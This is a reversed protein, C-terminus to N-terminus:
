LYNLNNNIQIVSDQTVRVSFTMVNHCRSLVEHMGRPGSVIKLMFYVATLLYKWCSSVIVDFKANSIIAVEMPSDLILREFLMKQLIILFSLNEKM